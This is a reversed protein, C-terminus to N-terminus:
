EEGKKMLLELMAMEYEKTIKAIRKSIQHFDLKKNLEKNSEYQIIGGDTYYEKPVFLRLGRRYSLGLLRKGSLRTDEIIGVERLLSEPVYIYGRYEKHNYDIAYDLM